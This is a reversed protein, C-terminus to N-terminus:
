ISVIETKRQQTRGLVLMYNHYRISTFDRYLGTRAADHIERIGNIVRYRCNFKLDHRIREFNVRYNPNNAKDAIISLKAGHVEQVILQGLERLRYNESNTGCNYIEDKSYSPAAELAKVVAQAADRVHLFPRWQDGIYVTVEHGLVAKITMWNVILDFRMRPSLGYLTAFRLICPLFAENRVSMLYQESHIKSRAYLSQPNLPSSEDVDENTSLGYNSCSSAFIFRRIGARRCAEALYITGLYNTSWALDPNSNCAPDGVISALHVVADVGKLASVVDKPNRVDGQLYSVDIGNFKYPFQPSTIGNDFVITRYGRSSLEETLVSGLYGAGGTVLVTHISM